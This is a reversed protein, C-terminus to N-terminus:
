QISKFKKKKFRFPINRFKLELESKRKNESRYAEVTGCVDM